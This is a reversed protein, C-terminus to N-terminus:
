AAVFLFVFFNFFAAFVLVLLAVLMMFAVMLLSWAWLHHSVDVHHDVGQCVPIVKVFCLTGVEDFHRLFVDLHCFGHFSFALFVFTALVLAFVFFIVFAIAIVFTAFLMFAALVFFTVFAFAIVFTALMLAFMVLFLKM